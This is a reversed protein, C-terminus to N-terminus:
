GGTVRKVLWQAGVTLLSTALAILAWLSKAGIRKGEELRGLRDNLAALREDLSQHGAGGLVLPQCLGCTAVQKDVASRLGDIKEIALDIREHLRRINDDKPPM